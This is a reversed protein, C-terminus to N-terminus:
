RINTLIELSSNQVAFIHDGTSSPELLFFLLFLGKMKIKIFTQTQYYVKILNPGNKEDNLSMKLSDKPPISNCIEKNFTKNSILIQACRNLSFKSSYNESGWLSSSILCIASEKIPSM